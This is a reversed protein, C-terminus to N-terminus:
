VLRARKFARTVSNTIARKEAPFLEGFFSWSLWGIIWYSALHIVSHSVNWAGVVVTKAETYVNSIPQELAHVFPHTVYQLDHITSEGFHKAKDLFAHYNLSPM